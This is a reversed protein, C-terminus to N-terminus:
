SVYKREHRTFKLDRLDRQPLAKETNSYTYLRYYFLGNPMGDKSVRKIDIAAGVQRLKYGYPHRRTLRQFFIFNEQIRGVFDKCRLADSRQAKGRFKDWVNKMLPTPEKLPINSMYLELKKVVQALSHWSNAGLLYLVQIQYYYIGKRYPNFFLKHAKKKTRKDVNEVEKEWKKRNRVMEEPTLHYKRIRLIKGNKDTIIEGVEDPNYMIEIM